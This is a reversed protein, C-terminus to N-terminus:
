ARQGTDVRPAPSPPFLVLIASGALSLLIAANYLTPSADSIVLNVLAALVVAFALRLGAKTGRPRALAIGALLAVLLVGIGFLGWTRPVHGAAVSQYTWYGSALAALVLGGVFLGDRMPGASRLNLAAVMFGVGVSGCLLAEQLYEYSLAGWALGAVAMMWLGWRAGDFTQAM